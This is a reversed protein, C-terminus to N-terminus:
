RIEVCVCVCVRSGARKQERQIFSHMGVSLETRIIDQVFLRVEGLSVSWQDKKM